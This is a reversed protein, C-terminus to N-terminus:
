FLIAICLKLHNMCLCMLPNHYLTFMILVIHQKSISHNAKIQQALAL